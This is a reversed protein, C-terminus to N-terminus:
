DARLAEVPDVRTMRRAPLYAALAAVVLLILAVTVFTAPDLLAVGFVMSGLLRTSLAALPVGVAVGLLALLVGQRVFLALLSSRPAGLAARVGIEHRRQTLGYAIVGYIGISALALAVAAFTALLTLSFRRDALKDSIIGDVTTAGAVPIDADISMVARRLARVVPATDGKARVVIFASRWPNVPQPVYVDDSADDALTFRVDGVVGVVEGEVRQNFDARGGMQKFVVLRRGVPNENKWLRKAFSANVILATSGPAMDAATFARGRLVPQRVAAFYKEDVVRFLASEEKGQPVPHDPVIVPTVVGSGSLPLHNILGVDRVGPIAAVRETLRTYFSLLKEPSDYKGESPGLRLTVLGNPDYGPNVERLRAFSKLLLGSAVLLVLSLAVQAVIFAARLRADRAGRGAGRSGQKMADALDPRAARLAPILGFLVPSTLCIVLTFGVVRLDLAIDAVRPLQPPAALKLLRVGWWALLLGIVGSALAIAVSEGLLLRAIRVRSAGLAARVALERARTSGRVLTLNAVNACAILLVAAVAGALVILAPRIDGVTEERLSTARLGIGSDSSPYEKALRRAIAALESAVGGATAGPALRGIVRNDVRFDRKGLVARAHVATAIPIYSASWAPYDFARPMVGIVTVPGVDTSLVRGVIRPDGGFLRQWTAHKLVVVPAGGAREEEASFTRGLLPATRMMPFFGGTVAAASVNETGEPRRVNLGEGRALAMGQFSTGQARWDVFDLYSPTLHENATAGSGQTSWLSVLQDSEAYILPRLLVGDIVSFLASTAGIGLSLAGIAVTAFLPARVLSRLM